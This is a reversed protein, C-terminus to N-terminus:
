ILFDKTIIRIWFLDILLTDNCWYITFFARYYKETKFAGIWFGFLKDQLYFDIGFLTFTM